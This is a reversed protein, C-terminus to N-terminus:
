LEPLPPPGQPLYTFWEPSREFFMCIEWSGSDPSPEAGISGGAILDKPPDLTTNKDELPFHQFKM